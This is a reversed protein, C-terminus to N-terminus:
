MRLAAERAAQRDLVVQESVAHLVDGRTRGHVTMAFGEPQVDPLKGNRTAYWGAPEGGDRSRWVRWGALTLKEDMVAEQAAAQM